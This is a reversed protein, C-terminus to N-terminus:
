RVKQLARLAPPAQRWGKGLNLTLPVIIQNTHTGKRPKKDMM